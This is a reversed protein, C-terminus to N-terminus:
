SKATVRGAGAGRPRSAAVRRNVDSVAVRRPRVSRRRRRRGRLLATPRSGEGGEGRDHSAAVARARGVAGEGGSATGGRCREGGGPVTVRCSTGLKNHGNVAPGPGLKGPRNSASRPSKRNKDRLCKWHQDVNETFIKRKKESKSRPSM